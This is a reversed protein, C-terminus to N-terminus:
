HSSSSPAPREILLGQNSASLDLLEEIPEPKHLLFGQAYDVGLERLRELVAPHEVHEAVTAVGLVRAVDVFCRVAAGNLPDDNLDNIFQGDIKLIDINLKKLYGFSSAGAGFDDLAVKVGLSRVQEIFVAADAIATIAATETIELCLRHCVASGAQRLTRMADRHFERDSVSQGSLNVFITGVSALDPVKRFMELVRRLVWRDIRSALHFREAAPLFAGPGILKGASDPLRILVEANLFRSSEFQAEIRQMHLVFLDDDLAQELRTAWQLEGHRARMVKDTDFWAHVRNRGADKAAYCSADAAQLVATVDTWRSDLVVLGISTGIRFRRQEHVFRFDNMQECIQRAISEATRRNCNELIVGFEDGGMRALVDSTGLSEKLLRAVQRLLQDGAAHGCADNVMKFQDLDILLLACEDGGDRARTLAVQLRAEFETRNILGTLMDHQARFSMEGALRRQETVDHFVLVAGFIQGRSNRIPAASKEIGHETGDRAVLVTRDSLGVNRGERLCVDAPNPAAERSDEDIICFVQPLAKGIVQARQWGTLREAAPNMWAVAGSSDTTIVADGISQLTVHLLEHQGALEASLERLLTVDWNVGVLRRVRGQEDCTVQAAARLYRVKGDPLTLRFEDEYPARSALSAQMAKMVRAADDKHLRKSWLRTLNRTEEDPIDYLRRMQQDMEMAGYQLDFEWVGIGGSNTALQMRRNAKEIAVRQAVRETIDQFTGILRVAKGEEFEAEGVARVWIKEGNARIYELELDWPTGQHMAKTVAARILPQADPAYAQIAEELEPQYGPEVGHIRCIQDSWTLVNCQLDLEWGGVNALEGTRKLLWESRRLTELQRKRATIDLSVGYMWEPKGDATHSIVSGRDHVWVWHGDRHRMRVECEFERTQGAFHEDLSRQAIKVDAPHALEHRVRINSAVGEDTELGFIEGWRRNFRAAGTQVNWEWTGVGTAEVIAALRNRGANSERRMRTRETIDELTGVFGTCVKDADWAPGVIARVLRETGDRHRIRYELTEEEKNSTIRQWSALVGSRDEPHITESWGNNRLQEASRDVIELCRTNAYSDVGCADTAFIGLPAAESLARFQAESQRLRSAMRYSELVRSAAASLQLLAERQEAALQRPVYDMVCLTGVRAGSSLTLPAGAYFRIDPRETVLPNDVFRPDAGADPVEFLENGLIAHACFAVDRPTESVGDLGYNAKFWQREGDVLSILSVPAKCILSATRVLADLAPEPETDLIELERLAKLREKENDPLRAAAM